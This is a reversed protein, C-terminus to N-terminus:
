RKTVIQPGAVEKEGLEIHGAQSTHSKKKEKGKERDCGRMRM